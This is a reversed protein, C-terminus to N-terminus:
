ADDPFHQLVFLCDDWRRRGSLWTLARDCISTAYETDLCQLKSLLFGRLLPHVVHGELDLFGRQTAEELLSTQKRGLLTRAGEVGALALLFLAEQLPPSVNRFLDEAFFRYLEDPALGATVDDSKRMAALGIVAPWGRAEAVIEGGRGGMVEFAEEDTFALADMEVVAAEGYVVKRAALWTPRERSTILLRFETLSVLEEFFAEADESELAHHYDDVVLLWDAGPAGSSVAKALGRADHGRAALIRVREVMDPRPREGMAGLTEAIGVSLGAVDMM